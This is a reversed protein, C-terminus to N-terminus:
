QAKTFKRQISSEPDNMAPYVLMRKIELGMMRCTKIVWIIDHPNRIIANKLTVKRWKERREGIGLDTNQKM